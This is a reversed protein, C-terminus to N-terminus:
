WPLQELRKKTELFEKWIEDVVAAAPMVEKIYASVQGIELEGDQLDGEFMGKKARGRGLLEGLIDANAGALEAAQVAKYFANKILRVPTLKKLTLITDGEQADVVAQKFAQHASSEPTAVFRSGIQVGEAGLAFAACMARGNGIGGAAILPLDIADRVM